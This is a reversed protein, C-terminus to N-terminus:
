KTNTSKREKTERKTGITEAGKKNIENNQKSYIKKIYDELKGKEKLELLFDLKSNLKELPEQNNLEFEEIENKCLIEFCWERAFLNTILNINNKDIIKFSIINNFEKKIDLEKKKTEVYFINNSIFFGGINKIITILNTINIDNNFSIEYINNM